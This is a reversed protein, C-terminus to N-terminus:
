KWLHSATLISNMPVNILKKAARKATTLRFAIEAPIAPRDIEYENFTFNYCLYFEYFITKICLTTAFVWNTLVFTKPSQLLYLM